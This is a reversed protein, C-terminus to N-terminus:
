YSDNYNIWSEDGAQEIISKLKSGIYEFAESKLKKKMWKQIANFDWVVIPENQLLDSLEKDLEDTKEKSLTKLIIKYFYLVSYNNSAIQTSSYKNEYESLYIGAKDYDSTIICTEILSLYANSVSSGDIGKYNAPIHKIAREFCAISYSYKGEHFARSGFEMWQSFNLARGFIERSKEEAAKVIESIAEDSLSKIKGEVYDDTFFEDFHKDVESKLTGRVTSKSIFVIAGTGLLILLTLIIIGFDRYTKLRDEFTERYREIREELIKEHLFKKENNQHDESEM